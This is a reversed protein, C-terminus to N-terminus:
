KYNQFVIYYFLARSFNLKVNQQVCARMCRIYIHESFEYLEVRDENTVSTDDDLIRNMGLSPVRLEYTNYFEFFEFFTITNQNLTIM